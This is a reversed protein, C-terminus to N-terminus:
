YTFKLELQFCFTILSLSSSSLCFWHCHLSRFLHSSHYPVLSLSVSSFPTLPSASVEWRSSSFSCQSHPLFILNLHPSWSSLQDHPDSTGTSIHLQLARVTMCIRQFIIPSLLYEIGQPVSKICSIGKELLISIMYLFDNVEVKRSDHCSDKLLNLKAM